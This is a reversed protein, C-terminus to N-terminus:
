SSNDERNSRIIKQLQTNVFNSVKTNNESSFYYVDGYPGNGGLVPGTWTYLLSDQNNGLETTYSSRTVSELTFGASQMIETNAGGVGAEMLGESRSLSVEFLVHSMQM